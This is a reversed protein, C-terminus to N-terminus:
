WDTAKRGIAADLPENKGLDPNGFMEEEAHRYPGGLDARTGLVGGRHDRGGRRHPLPIPFQAHREDDHCATLVPSGLNAPLRDLQVLLDRV